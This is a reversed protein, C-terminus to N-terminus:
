GCNESMKGSLVNAVAEKMSGEFWSGRHTRKGKFNPM